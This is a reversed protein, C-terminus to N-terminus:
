QKLSTIYEEIEQQVNSIHLRTMFSRFIEIDDKERTAVLADIYTLKQEKPIRVPILNFEFQLYNMLLRAMRGNGDAWPHITVLHFHADFSINYLTQISPQAQLAQKRHLNLQDCFAQLRDPVKNFAMYSKGGIGASVNLLRLDGNASSFDGLPTHYESGTNKMVMAATRCLWEVTIDHHLVAEEICFVYANKLDFNMLQEILSRNPISMGEDFLLQNERETITSGEIATSHTILSYLSYKRYDIQQEIGLQRYREVTQELSTSDKM